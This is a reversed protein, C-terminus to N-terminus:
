MDVEDVVGWVRLPDIHRLCFDERYLDPNLLQWQSIKGSTGFHNGFKELDVYVRDSEWGCNLCRDNLSVSDRAVVYCQPKFM